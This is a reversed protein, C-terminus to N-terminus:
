QKDGEGSSELRRGRMRQSTERRLAVHSGEVCYVRPDGGPACKGAVVEVGPVFGLCMLREAVAEPMELGSLLAREGENLEALLIFEAAM